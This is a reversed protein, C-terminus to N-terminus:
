HKSLMVLSNTFPELLKKTMQFSIGMQWVNLERKLNQKIQFLPEVSKWFNKNDRVLKVNVQKLGIDCKQVGQFRRFVKRKRVNELLISIHCQVLFPNLNGFCSRRSKRLLSICVNQRYNYAVKTSETRKNLCTSKLRATKM